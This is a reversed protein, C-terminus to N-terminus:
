LLYSTLYVCRIQEEKDRYEKNLKERLAKLDSEQVRKVEKEMDQREKNLKERLIKLDSEHQDRLKKEEAEQQISLAQLFSTPVETVISVLVLM